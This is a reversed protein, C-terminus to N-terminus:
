RGWYNHSAELYGTKSRDSFSVVVTSSKDYEDERPPALGTRRITNKAIQVDSNVFRDFRDAFGEELSIQASAGHCRVNIATCDGNPFYSIELGNYSIKDGKLEAGHMRGLLHSLKGSVRAISASHKQEQVKGWNDNDRYHQQKAARKEDFHRRRQDQRSLRVKHSM